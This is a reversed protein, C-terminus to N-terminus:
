SGYDSASEFMISWRGDKLILTQREGNKCRAMAGDNASDTALQELYDWSVERDFAKDNPYFVDYLLM